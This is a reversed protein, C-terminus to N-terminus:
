PKHFGLGLRFTEVLDEDLGTKFPALRAARHTKRHIGVLERGALAAGRGRVAIELAALAILAARMENRRRHSCSGRNGSMEDVDSLPISAADHGSMATGPVAESREGKGPSGSGITPM